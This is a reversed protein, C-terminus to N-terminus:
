LHMVDVMYNTTARFSELDNFICEQKLGTVSVDEENIDMSYNHKNRLFNPNEKCM